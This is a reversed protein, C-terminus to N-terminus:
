FQLVQALRKFVIYALEDADDIGQTKKMTKMGRELHTRLTSPQINMLECIEERTYMLSLLLAIAQKSSLEPLSTNSISQAHELIRKDPM